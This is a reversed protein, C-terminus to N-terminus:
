REHVGVVNSAGAAFPFDSEAESRVRFRYDAPGAFKFRYSAHFHGSADTRVVKFEIWASGPSHAELVLQKGGQPVPGGRLHGAFRIGSGVSATHPSVRLVIGARVNLRLTRTAVPLADGLHARYAIRLTCSSTGPAIRVRFRGNADTRPSAMSVPKAGAYSPSARLDLSAGGIPAGGPATLRGTLIRSSGYGSTLSAKKTGRWGAALTVRTSANTGNAPGPVGPPPPNDIALTRDLVPAANGAADVVSVVLHHVGNGIKTTDFPADASVSQQCPQVYVFAALGDTTEGVDRCRGGNDDVVTRQVVSGDVSFVAEYVGAGPDTADFAVDSAGRVTPASALEGTVATAHPGEDQELTLDAAYLYVAAAYGNSDGANPQCNHGPVVGCNANVYLSAGLADSPLVLRNAASLSEGLVGEHQCGLSFVCEDYVPTENQGTMWFQYTASEGAQGRVYGARWLTAGAINVGAPASFAWTARDVEAAHAVQDGIAAIMAGGEVCTNVVRDDFASEAALSGSWGDVPAVAGAPTRCSYVHYQGACAVAAALGLAVGVAVAGKFIRIVMEGIHRWSPGRAGEWDKMADMDGVATTAPASLAPALARARTESEDGAVVRRAAFL